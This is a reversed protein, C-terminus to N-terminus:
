CNPQGKREGYAGRPKSSCKWFESGNTSNGSTGPPLCTCPRSPQRPLVRCPSRHRSPSLPRSWQLPGECLIVAQEILNQMERINGPWDYTLLEQLAPERIGRFPKGNKPHIEPCIRLWYPSTKGDKGCRPCPTPFVCLRYYLDQRFRGRAVEEQLNRNTAAVVRVNVQLTERGGIREIEKEQLVRLLKAQLKLPLEGIEDLFITGQHALEFKGTKRQFAGTFAGKEHGFLESEILEDPLAACNVKILPKDKRSSANHLSRAILEKGTGTEGEILVTTDTHAVQRISQFVRQMLPSTGVMEHFNHSSEVEEMLYTKEARLQQSLQKIEQYALLKDLAIAVSHSIRTLLELHYPHYADPKRSYFSLIFWGDRGLKLPFVLSSQLGFADAILKQFRHKRYLNEFEQGNLLLPERYSLEARLKLLQGALTAMMRALAETTITQYETPGVRRFSYGPLQKESKEMGLMLYDFPVFPQLALTVQLLKSEWTAEQSLISHIALQLSKEREREEIQAKQALIRENALINSVAVAVQNSLSHFLPIQRQSFRGPQKSHFQLTGLLKGGNRLPMYVAEVLGLAQLAKVTKMGPSEYREEWEKLAMILPESLGSIVELPTGAITKRGSFVRHYCADISQVAVAQTDPLLQCSYTLTPDYSIIIADDFGLVPKLEEFLIKFLDHKDRITALQESISLLVSKERERELLEENALINAVAVAVQDAIAKLLGFQQEKVSTEDSFHFHLIGIYNGGWHLKLHLSCKLGTQIMMHLGAHAPYKQLLEESRFRYPGEHSIVETLPDGALPYYHNVTFQYWYYQQREQPSITLLHRIHTGDKSFVSALADAFGVLPKIKEMMVRWLDERDRITAMDESLSLLLAKERERELIEENALINAVAVAVQDCISQFLPLQHENFFNDKESHVHLSGIVQGGHRLVGLMGDKIGVQQM